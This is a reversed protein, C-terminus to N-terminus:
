KRRQKLKADISEELMFAWVPKLSEKRARVTAFNEARVTTHEHYLQPLPWAYALLLLSGCVILPAHKDTFTEKPTHM